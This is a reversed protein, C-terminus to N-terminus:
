SIRIPVMEGSPPSIRLIMPRTRQLTKIEPPVPEPFVVRRLQM